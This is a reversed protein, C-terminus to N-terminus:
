FAFKGKGDDLVIDLMEFINRTPKEKEPLLSPNNTTSTTCLNDDENQYNVLSCGCCFLSILFIVAIKFIKIEDAKLLRYM